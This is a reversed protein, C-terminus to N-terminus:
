PTKRQRSAIRSNEIKMRGRYGQILDEASVIYEGDKKQILNSMIVYIGDLLGEEKIKDEMLGYRIQFTRVRGKNLKM